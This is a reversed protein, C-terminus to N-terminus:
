KEQPFSPHQEVLDQIIVTMPKNQERSLTSLFAYVQKRLKIRLDQKKYRYAEESIESVQAVKLHAEPEVSSIRVFRAPDNVKIHRGGSKTITRCSLKKDPCLQEGYIRVAYIFKNIIASPSLCEDKMGETIVELPINVGHGVELELLFEELDELWSFVRLHVPVEPTIELEGVRVGNIYKEEGDPTIVIETNRVTKMRKRQKRKRYSM